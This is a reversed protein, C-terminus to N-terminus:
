LIACPTVFPDFALKPFRAMAHSAGGDGVDQSLISELRCWIPTLTCSPSLKQLYMPFRDRHHIEERSLSPCGLSQSSKLHEKHDVEGSATYLNGPYTTRRMSCPDLSYQFSLEIVEIPNKPIVLVQDM